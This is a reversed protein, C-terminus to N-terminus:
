PAIEIVQDSGPTRIKLTGFPIADAPVLCRLQGHCGPIAEPIGPEVDKPECDVEELVTESAEESHVRRYIMECEPYISEGHFLIFERFTGVAVARHGLVVHFAGSTVKKQTFLGSVKEVFPRGMVAPCAVM